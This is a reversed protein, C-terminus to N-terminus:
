ATHCQYSVTGVWGLMFVEVLFGAGAARTFWMDLALGPETRVGNVM